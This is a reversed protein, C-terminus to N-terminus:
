VDAKKQADASGAIEVPEGLEFRLVIIFEDFLYHRIVFKFRIYARLDAFILDFVRCKMAIM